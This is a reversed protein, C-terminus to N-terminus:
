RKLKSNIEDLKDNIKKQEREQKRKEYWSLSDSQKNTDVSSSDDSKFYKYIKNNASSESNTSNTYLITGCIVLTALTIVITLRKFDSM